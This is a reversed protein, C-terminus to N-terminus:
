DFMFFMNMRSETWKTPWFDGPFENQQTCMRGRPQNEKSQTFNEWREADWLGDLAELSGLVPYLMSLIDEM